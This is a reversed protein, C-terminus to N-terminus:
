VLEQETAGLVEAADATNAFYSYGQAEAQEEDLETEAVADLTGDAALRAYVGSPAVRHPDRLSYTAPAGKVRYGFVGTGANEFFRKSVTDFMGPVGDAKRLAPILNVAIEAGRSIRAEFMRYPSSEAMSGNNNLGFLFFPQTYVGQLTSSTGFQTVGWTDARNPAVVTAKRSNLWNISCAVIDGPNIYKNQNAAAWANWGFGNSAGLAYRANILLQSNSQKM